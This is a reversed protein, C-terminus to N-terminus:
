LKSRGRAVEAVITGHPESTAVYVDDEFGATNVVACPLFHINPLSFKVREVQAVQRLVAQGMEHLTYQVSPSYVGAKADGFFTETCARVVADYLADFDTAALDLEGVYTWSGSMSTALIRERTDPLLTYKDHLFGEYGSQTTKLVKLGDVGSTLSMVEGGRGVVARCFRVQTGSEVFGHNHPQQHENTYRGWPMRKVTVEAQSVLPYEAVFHKALAIAFDEPSHREYTLCTKAIYYVTNKQTDTATMGENSGQVFAHEMASLLVTDVSYEAFKHVGSSPARSSSHVHTRMPARAAHTSRQAGTTSTGNPSGDPRFTRGVRVRSKGHQHSALSM